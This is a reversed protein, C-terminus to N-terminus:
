YVHLPRKRTAFISIRKSKSFYATSKKHIKHHLPYSTVTTKERVKNFLSSLIPFQGYKEM